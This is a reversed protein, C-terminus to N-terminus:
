CLAGVSIDLFNRILQFGPRGSKEPHFQVGCIVGSRVSSTFCGAYPTKSCEHEKHSVSFHYSHVFYFDTGDEIGRFMPANPNFHVENWGIHPVRETPDSPNLRIIEGKILGLGQCSGGEFGREALLQMGLCIGLLPIGNAAANRISPTWGIRDLNEMADSFAGVGPLVVASANNMDEPCTSVLVSAGCEEFARRVSGLNCMGYDIILVSM